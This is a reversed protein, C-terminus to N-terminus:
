TPLSQINRGSSVSTDKNASPSNVRVLWYIMALLPLFAPIFWLASGRWAKPFVQQQGLFFSGTAVFFSVCMRWLHRVVRQTSSLGRVIMRIDGAVFLFGVCSWFFLKGASDGNFTGNSTSAAEIGGVLTLAGFAFPFLLAVCDFVTTEGHRQRATLWGTTVLYCALLGGMGSQGRLMGLYSASLGMALMAVFFVNGTLRHWRSGKRLSMAAFGTVVGAVGSCIHFILIPFRM